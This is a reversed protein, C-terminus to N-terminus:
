LLVLSKRKDRVKIYAYRYRTKSKSKICLMHTKNNYSVRVEKLGFMWKQQILIM